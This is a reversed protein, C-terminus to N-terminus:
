LNDELNTISHFKVNRIHRFNKFTMSGNKILEYLLKVSDKHNKEEEVNCQSYTFVYTGSILTQTHTSITIKNILM